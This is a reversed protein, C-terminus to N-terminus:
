TGDMPLGTGLNGKEIKKGREHQRIEKEFPDSFSAHHTRLRTIDIRMKSRPM